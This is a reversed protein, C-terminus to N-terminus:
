SGGTVVTNLRFSPLDPLKPRQSCRKSKQLHNKQSKSLKETGEMKKTDSIIFKQLFPGLVDDGSSLVNNHPKTQYHSGIPSCASTVLERMPWHCPDSSVHVGM